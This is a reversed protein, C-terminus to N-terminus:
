RRRQPSWPSPLADAAPEPRAGGQDFGGRQVLQELWRLTAAVRATSRLDGHTVAWLELPPPAMSPLVQELRPDGRVFASSLLAIGAGGACAAYLMTTSNARVAVRSQGAVQRLWAQGRQRDLTRDYLVLDHAALDRASRPRGRRSLYATAAYLATRELGLRRAVLSRERPRFNRLAVDAEGRTLDLARVDALVEVVLGPHTALFGPLAPALVFTAFGDGCTIRVTGTPRADAGSLEREADLLEAEVREARAALAAAAATGVLGEPRRTFLRSGIAAELAAIRRGITTPAVRLQRGAAAHSRTRHVALFVRLDNWEFM